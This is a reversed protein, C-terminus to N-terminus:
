LLAHRARRRLLGIRLEQLTQRRQQSTPRAVAMAVIVISSARDTVVIQQSLIDLCGLLAFRECYIECTGRATTNQAFQRLAVSQMMHGHIGLFSLQSITARTPCIHAAWLTIEFISHRQGFYRSHNGIRFIGPNIQIRHHVQRLNQHYLQWLMLLPAFLFLVTVLYCWGHHRTM